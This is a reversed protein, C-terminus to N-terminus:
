QHLIPSPHSSREKENLNIKVELENIMSDLDNIPIAYVEYYKQSGKPTLSMKRIDKLRILQVQDDSLVEMSNPNM